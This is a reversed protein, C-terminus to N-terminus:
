TERLWRRVESRRQLGPLMRILTSKGAGNPGLLAFVEGGRVQLSVDDVATVAGFRKTVGEVSVIWDEM